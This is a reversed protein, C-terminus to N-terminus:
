KAFAVAEHTPFELCELLKICMLEEIGNCYGNYQCVIENSQNFVITAPTDFIGMARKLEGNKDSYIEIDWDMGAVYPKVHATSGNCDICIGIIRVDKNVLMKQQAEIMETLYEQSHQDNTRWFIVISAEDGKFIDLTSILKGNLNTLFVKPIGNKQAALLNSIILFAITIILM